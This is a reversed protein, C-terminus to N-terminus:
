LGALFNGRRGSHASVSRYESVSVRLLSKWHSIISERCFFIKFMTFIYIKLKVTSGNFSHVLLKESRMMLQFNLTESMKMLRRPTPFNERSKEIANFNVCKTRLLKWLANMCWFTWFTFRLDFIFIIWNRWCRECKNGANTLM